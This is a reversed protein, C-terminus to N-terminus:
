DILLVLFADQLMESEGPYVRTKGWFMYERGGWLFSTKHKVDLCFFARCSFSANGFLSVIGKEWTRSAGSQLGTGHTNQAHKGERLPKNAPKSWALHGNGLWKFGVVVVLRKGDLLPPSQGDTSAATAKLPNGHKKVAFFCVKTWGPFKVYTDQPLDPIGEPISLRGTYLTPAEYSLPTGASRKLRSLHSNIDRNM